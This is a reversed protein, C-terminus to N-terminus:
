VAEAYLATLFFGTEWSTVIPRRHDYDDHVITYMTAEPLTRQLEGPTRTLLVEGLVV